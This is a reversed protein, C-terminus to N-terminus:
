RTIALTIIAGAFAALVLSVFGYVIKQTLKSAYRKDAEEMARDYVQHPLVGVLGRIDSEFRSFSATLSKVDKKIEKIEEMIPDINTKRCDHKNKNCDEIKVFESM